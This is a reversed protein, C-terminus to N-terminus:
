SWRRVWWGWTGCITSRTIKGLADAGRGGEGRTSRVKLVVDEGDVVNPKNADVMRVDNKGYWALARMKAGSPDAFQEPDKSPNSVHSTPVGPHEGLAKGAFNAAM